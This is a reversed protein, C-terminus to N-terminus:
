VNGGQAVIAQTLEYEERIPSKVYGVQVASADSYITNIRPSYKDTQTLSLIETPTLQVTYPTALKYAIELPTEALLANAATVAQEATVTGSLGLSSKSFSCKCIKAAGSGRWGYQNYGTNTDGPEFMNSGAPNVSHDPTESVSVFVAATTETQTFGSYVDLMYCSTISDFQHTVTMVGTALDVTGGYYTSGLPLTSDTGSYPEFSTATSALEM